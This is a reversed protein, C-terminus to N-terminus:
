PKQFDADAGGDRLRPAALDASQPRGDHRGAIAARARNNPHDPGLAVIPQVAEFAIRALGQERRTRTGGHLAKTMELGQDGGPITEVYTSVAPNISKRESRQSSGVKFSAKGMFRRRPMSAPPGYPKPKYSVQAWEKREHGPHLISQNSPLM